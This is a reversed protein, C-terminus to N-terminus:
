RWKIPVDVAGFDQRGHPWGHVVIGHWDWRGVVFIPREWQDQLNYNQLSTQLPHQLFPDTLDEIWGGALENFLLLRFPLPILLWWLFLITGLAAVVCSCHLVFMIPYIGLFGICDIGTTSDDHM